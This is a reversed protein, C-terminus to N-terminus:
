RLLSKVEPQFFISILSDTYEKKFHFHDAFIDQNYSFPLDQADIDVTPGLAELDQVFELYKDSLGNKEIYEKVEYYDPPIVFVLNIDHEKCYDAIQVLDDHVSRPYQYRPLVYETEILRTSKEWNDDTDHFGRSVFKEDGSIQYYLVSFSDLLYDWNYFYTYPKKIVQRTPGYLEYNNGEVNYSYFNAQIIVNKLETRDAAMWFMEIVSRYNFGASGLNYIDMGIAESLEDSKLPAVKSDGLLINEKPDRRYEITKWLTNGRPTTSNSRNLVRIKTEDNFVKSINVLNYPDVILIFLAVLLFPSLFLILRVLLKVM